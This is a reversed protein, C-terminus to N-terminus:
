YDLTVNITDEYSDAQVFQGAPLKGYVTHIVSGALVGTGSVTTTENWITTHGSDSYLEYGLKDTSVAGTMARTGGAPAANASDGGSLTITYTTGNTCKADIESQATVEAGNPDYSGFDMDTASVLCSDAVTATVQFTSTAEAALASNAFAFGVAVILASKIFQNNKKM